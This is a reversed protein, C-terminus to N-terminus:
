TAFDECFRGEKVKIQVKQMRFISCAALCFTKFFTITCFPSVNERFYEYKFVGRHTLRYVAHVGKIRSYGAHIRDLFPFFSYFFDRSVVVKFIEYLSTALLKSFFIHTLLYQVESLHIINLLGTIFAQPHFILHSSQM